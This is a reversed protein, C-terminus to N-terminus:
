RDFMIMLAAIKRASVTYVKIGTTEYALDALANFSATYTDVADPTIKMVDKIGMGVTVLTCHDVDIIVTLGDKM